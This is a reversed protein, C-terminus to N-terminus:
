STLDQAAQVDSLAEEVTQEGLVISQVARGIASRVDTTFTSPVEQADALSGVLETLQPAVEGSEILERSTPTFGAMEAFVQQQEPESLWKLFALSEEPHSGKPNVAAGKGVRAVGRPDHTGDEAAPVPLVAYDSFDPATSRAVAVAGSGNFIVGLDRVNFFSKEVNPNDDTGGPISNSAIVGGDRLQEFLHFTKEWEATEWPAQGAVTAEIEEDTMYNSAYSKILNPAVSAAVSFLGSDPSATSLTEILEDMTSPPASPDIGTSAPDVFLGLANVDWHVSYIGPPVDQNNDEAFTTLALALPTFSDGWEGELEETLDMAWGAKYYPAMGEDVASYIDPMSNSQAKSQLKAAFDAPGPTDITITIGNAESYEGALQTLVEEQGRSQNLFVIEVPGGADTSAEGGSGCATLVLSAAALVAGTVVVPRLRGRGIPPIHDTRM